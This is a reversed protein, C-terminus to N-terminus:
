RTHVVAWPVRVIVPIGMLIRVIHDCLAYQRRVIPRLAAWQGINLTTHDHADTGCCIQQSFEPIM